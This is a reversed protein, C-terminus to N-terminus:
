LFSYIEKLIRETAGTNDKVFDGCIKGLSSRYSDDSFIKRLRYYAMKKNKVILGGGRKVLELAEQSNEIKPGFLVPVGYAAPELVNHVKNFSGGVYAADSYYYLTLLIGISDVLIVREGEYNNLYSFRISNFKGHFTNEIKELHIITPEHPVLIVIVKEDRELLKIIAPLIVEEDTEWSSGFVFVKKGEFFSDKFLKREKAQLSKQHVRDFRTDGVANLKSDPINFIKFNEVDHRSVALIKTVGAYLAKHFGKILPLKRMSNSRMTADVIMYPIGKKDIQWIMNPWIDYRMFIILNPRVLNLFRSTMSPIDFPLYSIVDAFPYNLSNRYGSPSFFTVIINVNREAKLKEIIPKAQEFEGMSASHFWVMKKSRDIGTLDIILNEFLRKRDKISTRIKQNLVPSILVLFHLIPLVLINYVIRWFSNM